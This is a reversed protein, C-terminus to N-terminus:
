VDEVIIAQDFNDDKMMMMMMVEKHSTDSVLIHFFQKQIASCM